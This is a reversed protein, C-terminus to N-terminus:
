GELELIMDLSEIGDFSTFTGVPQFGQKEYFRIARANDRLVGGWLIIRQKGFRKAVDIMFPFLKSGLGSNQYADAITPGFRCDVREELPMGFDAFRHLDDDPLGFSFEFLGVIERASLEDIVFRLKDYRNIADCLEQATARDYSPFISFRRTTPSLGSLFSALRDMDHAQLPRLLIKDGTPLEVPYTVLHPHTFVETLTLNM